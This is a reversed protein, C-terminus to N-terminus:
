EQLENDAPDERLFYKTRPVSPDLERERALREEFKERQELDVRDLVAIMPAEVVHFIHPYFFRCVAFSVVLALVGRFLRTRLERLHEGLTMRTHQFPDPPETM